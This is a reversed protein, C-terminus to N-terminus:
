NSLFYKILNGIVEVVMNETLFKRKMNRQIKGLLRIVDEFLQIDSNSLSDRKKALLQILKEEVENLSDKSNM